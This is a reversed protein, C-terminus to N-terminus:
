LGMEKAIKKIKKRQMKSMVNSQLYERLNIGREVLSSINQRLFEDKKIKSSKTVRKGKIKERLKKRLEERKTLPQEKKTKVEKKPIVVDTNEITEVLVDETNETNNNNDTM